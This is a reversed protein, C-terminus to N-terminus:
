RKRRKKELKVKNMLVDMEEEIFAVRKQVVDLEDPMRKRDENFDELERKIVDFEEQLELFRKPMENEIESELRPMVKLPKKIEEELLEVRSNLGEDSSKTREILDNTKRKLEFIDERLENIEIEEAESRELGEHMDKLSNVVKSFKIELSKIRSRMGPVKDEKKLRSEEMKKAKQETEFESIGAHIKELVGVIKSFKSSLSRVETKLTEIDEYKKTRHADERKKRALEEQKKKSHMAKEKARTAEKKKLNDELERLITDVKSM